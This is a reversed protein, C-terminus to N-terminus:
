DKEGAYNLIELQESDYLISDIFEPNLRAVLIYALLLLVAAAIPISVALIIKKRRGSRIGPADSEGAPEPVPQPAPGTKPEPESEPEPEPEAKPEPAPEPESEPESVSESAPQSEPESAPTPETESEPEPAPEPKPESAPQSEPESAPTPGTESEPVQVSESVPASQGEPQPETEPVPQLEPTRGPQPAEMIQKLEEVAASVEEKTEQHTKLSVPALGFGEPYIDIDEDSVFFFNNERTARLRGLAPFVVVKKEQLVEKMEGVFDAIIRQAVDEDVNNSRSYLNALLNDEEKSPRFSLRRYPPNITYGKDSFSAPVLEAVFTGLGPLTVGDHDLILERVMKSLLDINM